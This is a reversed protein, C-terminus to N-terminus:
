ATKRLITLSFKALTADQFIKVNQLKEINSLKGNIILFQEALSAFSLMTSDNSM